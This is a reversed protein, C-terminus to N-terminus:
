RPSPSSLVPITASNPVPCLASRLAKLTSVEVAHEGRRRHAELSYLHSGVVIETPKLSLAIRPLNLHIHTLTNFHIEELSALMRSSGLSRRLSGQKIAKETSTARHLSNQDVYKSTVHFSCPERFMGLNCFICDLTTHHSNARPQIM